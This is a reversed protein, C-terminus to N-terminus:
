DTFEFPWPNFVNFLNSVTGLSGTGPRILRLPPTPDEETGCANSHADPHGGGEGVGVGGESFLDRQLHTLQHILRRHCSYCIVM